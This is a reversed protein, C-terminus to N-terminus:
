RMSPPSSSCSKSSEGQVSTVSEAACVCHVMPGSKPYHERLWERGSADAHHPKLVLGQRPGYPQQVGCRVLLDVAQDGREIGGGLLGGGFQRHGLRHEVLDDAFCRVARDLHEGVELVHIRRGQVGEHVTADVGDLAAQRAVRDFQSALTTRLEL